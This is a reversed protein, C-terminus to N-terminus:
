LYTFNGQGGNKATWILNAVICVLEISDYQATSALSGTIGATTSQPSVHIQQNAGQTIIWGGVGKGTINIVQGVLSTTPLILTMLTASNAIYGNNASMIQPSITAEYWDFTQSTITLLDFTIASTGIVYPGPSVQQYARGASNTGQNVLVVQDVIIDAAQDYDTARTLVWNISASGLTSVIYIGNQFTSVQNKILVRDGVAFLVGDVSFAAQAGANTLTAGVGLLGNAYVVTFPSTSVGLVATLTSYGQAKLYFNFEAARTYKKTTGSPAETIDTTDTAPTLDTGKPAGSGTGNPLPPLQSIIVQAM